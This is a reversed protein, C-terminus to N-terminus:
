QILAKDIIEFNARHVYLAKGDIMLKTMKPLDDPIEWYVDNGSYACIPVGLQSQIVVVQQKGFYNKYKNVVKAVSTLDSLGNDATSEIDSLNFDVDPKLGAEAFIVTNGCSSMQKGDITITIVSSLSYTKVYDGESDVGLEEVINGDIDVKKGSVTFFKAGYNDYFEATYSNGVLMGKIDNIKSDLVGCGSVSIVASVLLALVIAFSMSKVLAMKERLTVKSEQLAATDKRLTVKNQNKKM